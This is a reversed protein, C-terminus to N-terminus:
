EAGIKVVVATFDDNQEAGNQFEEVREALREFIERATANTEGRVTEVIREIGFFEGEPNTTENVGDSFLLYADGPELPAREEELADDFIASGTLGIAAGKSQMATAEGNRFRLTPMHGARAVVVEGNAADFLAVSATIFHRRADRNDFRRNTEVLVERPSRVGDCFLRAMTQFKAMYLSAAVGKGAVDAVVVYLKDDGAQIADFYDGGVRMAPTTKGFVDFGNTEPTESPLLADQIQRALALDAEIVRKEAEEEYLRANELAAAAQAAVAGLTELDKGGFQSGSRKLGVFFAGVVRDKVIMPAVTYIEARELQEADEPLAKEFDSRELPARKAVLRKEDAAAKLAEPSVALRVREESGVVAASEFAGERARAVGFRRVRLRDVFTSVIADTINKEGVLNNLDSAFSTLVQEQLFQEPYFRKTLATQLRDKASQFLLAFGVFALLSFFQRYETGIAEGFGLGLAFVTFLYVAAIGVTGAGYVLADRFVTSVDLMQYRFISYGFSLPLLLLLLFPLFLEPNNYFHVNATALVVNIFILGALILTLSVIISVLPKRKQKDKTKVFTRLIVVYAFVFVVGYYSNILNGGFEPHPHAVDEALVNWHMLLHFALVLAGSGYIVGLKLKSRKVPENRFFVLFFHASISAGAIAVITWFYYYIELAPSFDGSFLVPMFFTSASSYVVLAAGVAYFFRQERGGPKAMIVVFGVALWFFALLAFSLNGVNVLKAVRVEANVLEGDRRVTFTATDGASMRNFQEQTKFADEVPVGDLAVFVDGNQVGAEGAAGGPKVQDFFVVVSDATRKTIWLCEDNSMPNVVLEHYVNSVSLVGL